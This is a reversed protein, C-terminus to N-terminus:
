RSRSARSTWSSSTRCASRCCSRMTAKLSLFAPLKWGPVPDGDPTAIVLGVNIGTALLGVADEDLDDQQFVDDPGLDFGGANYGVFVAANAIGLLFTTVPVNYIISGDDNSALSGDDTDEEVPEGPVAGALNGQDTSSLGDTHVDVAAHGGTTFSFGGSIHVFGSISLVVVDASVGIVSDTSDLVVAPPSTGGIFVHYGAPTPNDSGDTPNDSPNPDPFSGVWDVVATSTAGLGTELTTGLNAEFEVNKATLVLYDDIGTLGVEAVYGKLGLFRKSIPMGGLPTLMLFTLNIGGAFLGLAGAALESQQMVEDANADDWGFGSGIFANANTFAFQLTSVQLNWLKSYDASRGVETGNTPDPTAVAVNTIQSLVGSTADLGTNLDVSGIGGKTLTLTGNLHLM